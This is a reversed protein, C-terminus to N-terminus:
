RLVQPRVLLLGGDDGRLVKVDGAGRKRQLAVADADGAAAVGAVKLQAIGIRQGSLNRAERDIVCVQLGTRLAALRGKRCPALEPRVSACARNFLTIAKNKIAVQANNVKALLGIRKYPTLCQFTDAGATAGARQCRELRAQGREQL